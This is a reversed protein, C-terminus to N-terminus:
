PQVEVPYLAAMFKAKLAEAKTLVDCQMFAVIDMDLSNIHIKTGYEHSGLYNKADFVDELKDDLIQAMCVLAHFDYELDQLASIRSDAIATREAGTNDKATNM